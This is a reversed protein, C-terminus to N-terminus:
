ALEVPPLHIGINFWQLPCVPRWCIGRPAPFKLTQPSKLTSPRSRSQSTFVCHPISVHMGATPAVQAPAPGLHNSFVVSM